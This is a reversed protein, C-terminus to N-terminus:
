FGPEEDPDIQQANEPTEEKPEDAQVTEHQQAEVEDATFVVATKNANEAVEAEVRDSIDETYATQMASSMVGYRTLIQLLVTKCGMSDFATFWPSDKKGARYAQSYRKAHAIVREKPWYIAKRFGSNLEFRAFYGIVEESEPEGDLAFEDTVRNFKPIEGKYVVDATISKYVGSRIALQLWGKYGMQFSPKDKYPIIYCYGFQRAVPLSLAAAKMCEALCLNPDCNQLLGDGTYLNLVSMVFAKSDAKDMYTALREQTNAANLIAKMKSVNSQALMNAM